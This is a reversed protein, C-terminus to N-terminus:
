GPWQKHGFIVTDEVVSSRKL